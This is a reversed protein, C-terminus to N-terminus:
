SQPAEDDESMRVCADLLAHLGVEFAEDNVEIMTDLTRSCHDFAEDGVLRRGRRRAELGDPFDGWDYANTGVSYTELM